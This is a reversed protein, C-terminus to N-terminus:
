RGFRSRPRSCQPWPVCLGARTRNSMRSRRALRVQTDAARRRDRVPWRPSVAIKGSDRLGALLPIPRGSCLIYRHFM